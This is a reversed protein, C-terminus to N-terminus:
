STVSICLRKGGASGILSIKTNGATVAGRTLNGSDKTYLSLVNDLQNSVNATVTSAIGLVSLIDVAARVGALRCIHGKCAVSEAGERTKSVAVTHLNAGTISYANVLATNCLYIGLFTNTTAETGLGTGVAYNMKYLINGAYYNLAVIVVLASLNAPEAVVSAYGAALTFLGAGLSCDLYYVIEGYYIVILTGSATRAMVYTRGLAYMQVVEDATSM